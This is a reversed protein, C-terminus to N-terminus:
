AHQVGLLEIYGSVFNQASDQSTSSLLQIKSLKGGPNGSYFGAYKSIHPNGAGDFRIMESRWTTFFSVGNVVGPSYIHVDGCIGANGPPLVDNIFLAGTAANVFEALPALTPPPYGCWIAGCTYNSSLDLAGGGTAFVLCEQGPYGNLLPNPSRLLNNFRLIYEDYLAPDFGETLNIYYESNNAAIRQLPVEAM